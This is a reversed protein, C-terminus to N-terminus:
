DEQFTVLATQAYGLSVGFSPGVVLLFEVWIIMYKLIDGERSM